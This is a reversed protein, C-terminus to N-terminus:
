ASHLAISRRGQEGLASQRHRDTKRRRPDRHSLWKGESDNRFRNSRRFLGIRTGFIRNSRFDSSGRIRCRGGLFRLQGHYGPSSRSGQPMEQFERAFVYNMQLALAIERGVDNHHTRRANQDIEQLLIIDAKCFELFAIVGPLKLGRYINWDVVRFADRPWIEIRPPAFGGIIIQDLPSELRQPM